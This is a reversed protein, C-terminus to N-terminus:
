SRRPKVKVTPARANAFPISDVREGVLKMVHFKDFVIQANRCNGRVGSQYAPSMDIAAHTIAHPHGNHEYLEDCFSEWTSKDRGETAFVVRKQSLDAFVTLYKHGKRYSLEDSGVQTLRSLDVAKYAERVYAKLVRWLRKDTENLIRSASKVPMQKM